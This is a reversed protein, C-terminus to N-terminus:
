TRSPRGERSACWQRLSAQRLTGLDPMGPALKTTSRPPVLSGSCCSNHIARCSICLRTTWTNHMREMWLKCLSRSLPSHRSGLHKLISLRRGVFGKLCCSCVFKRSFMLSCFDSSLIESHTALLPAAFLTHSIRLARRHSGRMQIISELSSSHTPQVGAKQLLSGHDRRFRLLDGVAEQCLGLACLSEACSRSSGDCGLTCQRVVSYFAAFNDLFLCGASLGRRKACSFFQITTHAASDIGSGKRGGSQGDHVFSECVPEIKSRFVQCPAEWGGTMSWSLAVQSAVAASASATQALSIM